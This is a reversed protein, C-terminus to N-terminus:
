DDDDRIDASTVRVMEEDSDEERNEEVAVPQTMLHRRDDFSSNITGLRVERGQQQFLVKVEVSMCTNELTQRAQLELQHLRSIVSPSRREETTSSGKEEEENDSYVEQEFAQNSSPLMLSLFYFLTEMEKSILFPEQLNAKKLVQLKEQTTKAEELEDSLRDKAEEALSNEVYHYFQVMEPTINKLLNEIPFYIRFAQKIRELRPWPHLPMNTFPLLTPFFREDISYDREVVLIDLMKKAASVEGLTLCLLNERSGNPDESDELLKLHYEIRNRLEPVKEKPLTWEIPLKKFFRKYFEEGLVFALTEIATSSGILTSFVAIRKELLHLMESFYGRYEDPLHNLAKKLKEPQLVPEICEFISRKMQKLHMLMQSQKIEDPTIIPDFLSLFAVKLRESPLSELTKRVEGPLPTPVSLPEIAADLQTTESPTLSINSVRMGLGRAGIQPEFQSFARMCEQIIHSDLMKELNKNLVVPQILDGFARRFEDLSEEESIGIIKIQRGDLTLEVTKAMKKPAYAFYNDIWIFKDLFFAHEVSSIRDFIKPFTEPPIDVIDDDIDLGAFPAISNGRLVNM